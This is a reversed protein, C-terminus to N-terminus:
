KKKTIALYVVAAHFIIAFAIAIFEADNTSFLPSLFIILFGLLFIIIFTSIRQLIEKTKDSM